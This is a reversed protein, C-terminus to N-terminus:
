ARGGVAFGVGLLLTVASLMAVQKWATSRDFKTELVGIEPKTPHYHVTVNAQLPYRVSYKESDTLAKSFGFLENCSVSDSVYTAGNVTYQYNPTERFAIVVGNTVPWNKSTAARYAGMLTLATAVAMVLCFLLCIVRTLM